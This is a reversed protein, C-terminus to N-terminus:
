ETTEEAKDEKVTKLVEEGIDKGISKIQRDQQVMGCLATMVSGIIVGGIAFVKNFNVKM